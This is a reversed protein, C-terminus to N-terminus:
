GDKGSSGLRQDWDNRRDFVYSFIYIHTNKTKKKKSKAISAKNKKWNVEEDVVIVKM